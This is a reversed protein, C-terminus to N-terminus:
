GPPYCGGESAGGAPCLGPLYWFGALDAVGSSEAMTPWSCALRRRPPCATVGNSQSQLKM